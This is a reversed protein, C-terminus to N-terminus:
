CDKAVARLHQRHQQDWSKRSSWSTRIFATGDPKCFNANDSAVYGSFTVAYEFQATGIDVIYTQGATTRITVSPQGTLLYDTKVGSQATVTQQFPLFAPHTITVIVPTGAPLSLTFEGNSNTNAKLDGYTARAGIVPLGNSADKVAGIVSTAPGVPPAPPPTVAHKRAQTGAACASSAVFVGIALAFTTAIFRSAVTMFLDGKNSRAVAKRPNPSDYGLPIRVPMMFRGGGPAACGLSRRTAAIGPREILSGRAVKEAANRRALAGYGAVVSASRTANDLEAAARHFARRQHHDLGAAHRIVSPVAADPRFCASAKRGMAANM